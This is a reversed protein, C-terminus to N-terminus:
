ILNPKTQKSQLPQFVQSLLELVLGIDMLFPGATLLLHELADVVSLAPKILELSKLLLVFSKFAIQGGMLIADFLDSGNGSFKVSEAIM